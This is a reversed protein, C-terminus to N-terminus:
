SHEGNQSVQWDVFDNLTAGPHDALWPAAEAKLARLEEATGASQSAQGNSALYPVEDEWRSANLWTSAHPRKSPERGMMEATQLRVAQVIQIQLEETLAKIAYVKAATSRAVKRWYLKWFEEFALKQKEDRFPKIAKVEAKAKVEAERSPLSERPFRKRNDLSYSYIPLFDKSSYELRKIVSQECHEPWDHIYLRYLDHRHIWGCSVLADILVRATRTGNVPLWGVAAAIASDPLSGLHGTPTHEAAHHWLMELIGVAHPLPVHLAEALAYTKPHRPTGRKM